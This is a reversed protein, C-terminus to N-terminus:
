NALARWVKLGEVTAAVDHVRVINAGQQVAAIAGVVSGLQREGAAKGTLEGILSKRSLGVLTAVPLPLGESLTRLHKILLINHEATKGFGIGPDFVIRRPSIGLEVLEQYTLYFFEKVQDVVSRYAPADQMTLPEGQMHMACLAVSNSLDARLIASKSEASRFGAVDNVMDAGVLIMERMVQPQRTDVSIPVNAKVLASVVPLLRKLEEEVSIPAAGPRTSEAGIDLIDAGEEILRHAHAIAADSHAFRGEAQFSDPTVNVIGMVLPKTLSLVFRGCTLTASTDFPLINM